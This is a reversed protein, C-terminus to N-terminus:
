YIFENLNRRVDDEDKFYFIKPKDLNFNLANRNVLKELLIKEKNDIDGYFINIFNLKNKSRTKHHVEKNRITFYPMVIGINRELIKKVKFSYTGYICKSIIILTDSKLINKCSNKCKDNHICNMPTNTWCNFCGICNKINNYDLVLHQTKIKKKLDHIITIM